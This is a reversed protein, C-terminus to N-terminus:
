SASDFFFFLNTTDNLQYSGLFMVVYCCSFKKKHTKYQKDPKVQPDTHHQSCGEAQGSNNRSWKEFDVEREIRVYNGKVVREM